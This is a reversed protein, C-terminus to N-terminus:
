WVVNKKIDAETQMFLVRNIGRFEILNDPSIPKCHIEDIEKEGFYDTVYNVVENITNGWVFCNAEVMGEDNKDAEDAYENYYSVYVSYIM